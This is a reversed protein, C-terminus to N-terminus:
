VNQTQGVLVLVLIKVNIELVRKILHVTQTLCANMDAAMMLIEKFVLCAVVPDLVMKNKVSLM